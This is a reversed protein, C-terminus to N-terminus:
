WCSWTSNRWCPRADRAAHQGHQGVAHAALAAPALRGVLHEHGRPLEELAQAPLVVGGVQQALQHLFRVQHDLQSGDRGLFFRVACKRGEVDPGPQLAIDHVCAVRADIVEAAGLHHLRVTSWEKTCRRISSPLIVSSAAL